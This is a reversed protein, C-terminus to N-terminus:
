KLEAGLKYARELYSEFTEDHHSKKEAPNFMTWDYKSYDNVQLTNGCCLIRTPGIFMNFTQQYSELLKAYGIEDYQEESCNSTMILIVPIPRNNCSPKEKNYTLNQFVAREYLARFSSTMNGLYNPSGIILGDANRIKELVDYLGDHCICKGFNKGSKCGFCSICGTYKDLKFLDIYEIEAGSDEAGKAASKILRDTNWGSRPGANIAIIKRRVPKQDIKSESMGAGKRFYLWTIMVEDEYPLDGERIKAYRIIM